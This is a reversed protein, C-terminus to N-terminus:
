SVSCDVDAVEAARTVEAVDDDLQTAAARAAAPDLDGAGEAVAEMRSRVQRLADVVPQEDDSVEVEDLAAIEDQVRDVGQQIVELAGAIDTVDGDGIRDIVSRVEQMVTTCAESVTTSGAAMAGGGTTTTPATTVTTPATTPATTTPAADDIPDDDTCGAATLAVAATLLLARAGNGPRRMM